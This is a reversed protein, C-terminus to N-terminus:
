FQSGFFAKERWIWLSLIYPTDVIFSIDLNQASKEGILAFKATAGWGQEKEIPSAPIMPENHTAYCPEPTGM